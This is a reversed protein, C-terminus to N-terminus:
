MTGLILIRESCPDTLGSGELISQRVTKFSIKVMPSDYETALVKAKLWHGGRIKSMDRAWYWIAENVELPGHSPLLKAALDRQLDLRQQAQQHAEQALRMRLKQCRVVDTEEQTMSGPNMNEIQIKDPPKRGTATELPTEEMLLIAIECM